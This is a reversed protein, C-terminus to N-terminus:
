SAKPHPKACRWSESRKMRLKISDKMSLSSPPNTALSPQKINKIIRRWQTSVPQKTIPPSHQQLGKTRFPRPKVNQRTPPNLSHRATQCPAQLLPVSHYQMLVPQQHNALLSQTLARLPPTSIFPTCFLQPRPGPRQNRCTESFNSTRSSPPMLNTTLSPQLALTQWAHLIFISKRAPSPQITPQFWSFYKDTELEASWM